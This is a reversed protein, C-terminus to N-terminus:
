SKSVTERKIEIEMSSIVKEAEKIIKVPFNKLLEAEKKLSKFTTLLRKMNVIKRQKKEEEPDVNKVAWLMSRFQRGVERPLSAKELVEHRLKNYDTDGLEKNAKAKRLINVADYHPLTAPTKTQLNEENLFHPESRTLFYYSNLLKFATQKKIGIEKNCYTDFEIYGWEKFIKDKKIQYLYEALEIWNTKFRKAADLVQYRLSSTDMDEMKLELDEIVKTKM